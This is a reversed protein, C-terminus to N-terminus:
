LETGDVDDDLEEEIFKAIMATHQPCSIFQMNENTLPEGDEPKEAAIGNLIGWGAWGKGYDEEVCTAECGKVDCTVARRQAM